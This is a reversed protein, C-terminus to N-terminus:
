LVKKLYETLVSKSIAEKRNISIKHYSVDKNMKENVFTKLNHPKTDLELLINVKEEQIDFIIRVSDFKKECHFRFEQVFPLHRDFHNFRVDNKDFLILEGSDDSETLGLIKLENLLSDELNDALIIVPDIDKPDSVDQISLGTSLYVEQMNSTIPLLYPVYKEFSITKTEGSNIEIDDTLKLQSLIYKKSDHGNSFFTWFYMYISSIIKKGDDRGGKILINGKLLDGLKVRDNYVETDVSTSGIDIHSQFNQLMLDGERFFLKLIVFLFFLDVM